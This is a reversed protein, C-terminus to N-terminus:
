EGEKYLYLDVWNCANMSSGPQFCGGREVLFYGWGGNIEPNSHHIIHPTEITQGANLQSSSELSIVDDVTKKHCFLRIYVPLDSREQDLHVMADKVFGLLTKEISNIHEPPIGLDRFTQHVFKSTLEGRTNMAVILESLPYEALFYWVPDNFRTNQNENSIQM